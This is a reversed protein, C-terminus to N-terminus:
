IKQTKLKQLFNKFTVRDLPVRWFIVQYLSIRLIKRLKQTLFHIAFVCFTGAQLFLWNCPIQWLYDIIYQDYLGIRYYIIIDSIVSLNELDVQWWAELNGETSNQCTCCGRNFDVERCGDVAKDSEYDPNVSCPSSQSTLKDYSLNESSIHYQMYLWLITLILCLNVNLIFFIYKRKLSSNSFVTNLCSKMKWLINWLDFTL